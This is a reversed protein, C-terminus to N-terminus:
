LQSPLPFVRLGQIRYWRWFVGVVGLSYSCSLRVWSWSHIFTLKNALAFLPLSASFPPMLGGLLCQILSKCQSPSCPSAPGSLFLRHSVSLCAYLYWFQFCLHFMSFIKRIVGPSVQFVLSCGVVLGTVCPLYIFSLGFKVGSQISETKWGRWKNPSYIINMARILSM